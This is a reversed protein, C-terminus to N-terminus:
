RLLRLLEAAATLDLGEVRLGDASMIVVPRGTASPSASAAVQVERFRERKDSTRSWRYLSWPAVGLAVAVQRLGDGQQQRTRLYEVAQLQLRKTGVSCDRGTAIPAPPPKAFDFSRTIWGDETSSAVTSWRSM